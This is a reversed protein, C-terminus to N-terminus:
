RQDVGASSGAVVLRDRAQWELRALGAVVLGETLLHGLGLMSASGAFYVAAVVCAVAWLSNAAILLLLLARPRRSRRALSFSYAAYTVNALGITLVVEPLLGYWGPLHHRLLLVLLGVLGGATCDLWLLGDPWRFTPRMYFQVM